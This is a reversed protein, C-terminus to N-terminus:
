QSGGAGTESSGNLFVRQVARFMMWTLRAENRSSGQAAETAIIQLLAVVATAAATPRGDGSIYQLSICFNNQNRLMEPQEPPTEVLNGAM